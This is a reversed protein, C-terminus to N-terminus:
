NTPLTLHTYSVARIVGIGIFISLNISGLLYAPFLAVIGLIVSVVPSYIGILVLVLFIILSVFLGVSGKFVTNATNIVETTIPIEPSATRYAVARITGTYASSDCTLIGTFGSADNDCIIFVGDGRERQVILNMSDTNQTPDNWIYTWIGSTTNYTLSTEVDFFSTYDSPDEEVLTAYSCPSSLCAFRVPNLLDILTGDTNYLGVRYDVDEIKVRMITEGKDDTKAM